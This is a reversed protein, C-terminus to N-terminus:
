FMYKLKNWFEEKNKCDRIIEDGFSQIIKIKKLQNIIDLQHNLLQADQRTPINM